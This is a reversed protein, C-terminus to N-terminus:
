TSSLYQKPVSYRILLAHEGKADCQMCAIYMTLGRNGQYMVLLCM